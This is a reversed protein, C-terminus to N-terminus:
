AVTNAFAPLAMARTSLAILKPFREVPFKEQLIFQVTQVAIVTAIDAHTLRGEAMWGPGAARELEDLGAFAQGAADVRDLAAAGPEDKASEYYIAGAKEIVALARVTLQQVRRRAAGSPPTLAREPGVLEDLYDAIASSDILTEGDGLVLIPVKGMANFRKVEDKQEFAHLAIHEFPMDLLNLTVGVRRTFPSFWPGVLKM